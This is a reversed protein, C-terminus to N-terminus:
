LVAVVVELYLVPSIGSPSRGLRRTVEQVSQGESVTTQLCHPPPRVLWLCEPTGALTRM